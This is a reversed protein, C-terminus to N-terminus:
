SSSGDSPPDARLTFRVANGRDPGGDPRLTGGHMEVIRRAVALAIGDSGPGAPHRLHHFLDLLREAESPELSPGNDEVAFEGGVFSVRVAPERAAQANAFARRLLTSWVQRLLAPDAVVEPFAGLVFSAFRDPDRAKVEDWAERVLRAHAGPALFRAQLSEQGLRCFQHLAGHMREM